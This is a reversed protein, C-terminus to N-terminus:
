LWMSLKVKIPDLDLNGALFYNSVVVTTNQPIFSNTCKSRCVQVTYNIGGLCDSLSNEIATTDNIIANPRLFGSDDLSKLCNYGRESVGMEYGEPLNPAKFLFLMTTVIMLGAIVAELTFSMGKDGSM